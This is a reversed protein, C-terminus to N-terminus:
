SKFTVLLLHRLNSLQDALFNFSDIALRINLWKGLFSFYIEVDCFCITLTFSVAGCRPQNQVIVVQRRGILINESSSILKRIHM